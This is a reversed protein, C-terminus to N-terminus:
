AGDRFIEILVKVDTSINDLYQINISIHKVFYKNNTFFFICTILIKYESFTSHNKM